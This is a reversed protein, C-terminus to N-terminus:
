KRKTQLKKLTGGPWPRRLRTAGTASAPIEIIAATAFRGASEPSFERFAACYEGGLGSIERFCRDRRYGPQCDGGSQPVTADESYGPFVYYNGTRRLVNIWCDNAVAHVV